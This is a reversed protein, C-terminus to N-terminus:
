SKGAEAKKHAQVRDLTGKYAEAVKEVGLPSLVGDNGAMAYTAYFSSASMLAASVVEKEEGDNKMTNALEIFRSTLQQLLESQDEAM